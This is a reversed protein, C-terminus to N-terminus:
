IIIGRFPRLAKPFRWIVGQRKWEAENQLGDETIALVLWQIGQLTEEFTKSGDEALSLLIAM